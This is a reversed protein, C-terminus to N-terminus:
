IRELRLQRVITAVGIPIEVAAARAGSEVALRNTYWHAILLHMAQKARVPVEDPTEYGAIVDIEVPPTAAYHQMGPSVPAYMGAWNWSTPIVRVPRRSFSVAWALASLPVYGTATPVRIAAISAVPWSALDIWRGLERATETIARRTLVLGTAEEVFERAAVILGGLLGDEGDTDVRLNGKVEELTLPEQPVPASAM